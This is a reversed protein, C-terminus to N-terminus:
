VAHRRHKRVWDDLDRRYYLIRGARKDGGAICHFSIEAKSRLRAMSRPSLHLYGAAQEETMPMDEKVRILGELEERLDSKLRDMRELIRDADM